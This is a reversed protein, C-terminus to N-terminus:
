LGIEYTEFATSCAEEFHECPFLNARQALQGM